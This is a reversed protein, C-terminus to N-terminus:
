FYKYQIHVAALCQIVNANAATRHSCTWQAHRFTNNVVETICKWHGSQKTWCSCFSFSFSFMAYLRCEYLAEIKFIFRLAHKMHLAPSLHRRVNISVAPLDTLCAQCPARSHSPVSPSKHPRPLLNFFELLRNSYPISNLPQQLLCQEAYPIHFRFPTAVCSLLGLM